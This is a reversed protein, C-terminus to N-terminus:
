GQAAAGGPGGAYAVAMRVVETRKSGPFVVAGGAV